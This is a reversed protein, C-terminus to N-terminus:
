QLLARTREEIFRQSREGTAAAVIIGDSNLFVLSPVAGVSLPGLVEGDVTAVRGQLALRAAARRVLDRDQELSVELFGVGKPEFIKRIEEVRPLERACIGCGPVWLAIVWPKGRLTQRDLSVGDLTTFQMGPPLPRQPKDYYECGAGILIALAALSAVTAM